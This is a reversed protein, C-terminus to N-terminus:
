GMKGIKRIGAKGEESDKKEIEKHPFEFFVEFYIM